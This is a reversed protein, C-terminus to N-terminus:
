GGCGGETSDTRTGGHQMTSLDPHFARCGGVASKFIATGGGLDVIDDLKKKEFYVGGDLECHHGRAFEAMGEKIIVRVEEAHRAM